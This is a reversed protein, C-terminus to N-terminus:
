KLKLILKETHNNITQKSKLKYKVSSLGFKFSNEKQKTTEYFLIKENEVMDNDKEEWYYKELITFKNSNELIKYKGFDESPMKFKYSYKQEEESGQISNDM